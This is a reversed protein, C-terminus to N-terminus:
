EEALTLVILTTMGVVTLYVGIDFLVPVGIKIPDAGPITATAWLGTLFPKGAALGALGSGIALLLGIGILRHPTAPLLRRATEGDFALGCLGVAAAAILGGVFGGGPHHHGQFLLFVSYLIMLPLLWRTATQLIVSTM